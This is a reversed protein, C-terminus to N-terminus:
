PKSPARGALSGNRPMAMATTPSSWCIILVTKEMVAGLAAHRRAYEADSFRPYEQALIAQQRVDLNLAPM